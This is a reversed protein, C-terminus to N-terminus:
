LNQAPRSIQSLGWLNPAKQGRLYTVVSVCARAGLGVASSIQEVSYKHSIVDGAAFVGNVNTALKEDVALYGGPDMALGLPLLLATGPVGGIEIFLKEIPLEKSEHNSNSAPVLKLHTLKEGDGEIETVKTNLILEIQPNLQIKEFWVGDCRLQAGRHIIYVKSAAQSLQVASQAASNGGGVVAVIKGEYDFRECTACYQIGKGTYEIEGPINLKRREVGTALIITKTEYQKESETAIVFSDGKKTIHTVSDALITGGRKEVQKAMRDTLEPGSIEEFGPYNLIDPALAMQGGLNKGILLHNLKFCSAYISASLGAPGTGIIILDYM